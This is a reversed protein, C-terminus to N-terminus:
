RSKLVKEYIQLIRTKGKSIWAYIEFDRNQPSKGLFLCKLVILRFASNQVEGQFGLFGTIERTSKTINKLSAIPLFKCASIFNPLDGGFIM